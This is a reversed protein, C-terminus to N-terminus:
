AKVLHNGLEVRAGSHEIIKEIIHAKLSELLRLEKQVFSAMVARTRLSQAEITHLESVAQSKLLDLAIADFTSTGKSFVDSPRRISELTSTHAHMPGVLLGILFVYCAM